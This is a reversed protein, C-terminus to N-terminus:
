GIKRNRQPVIASAQQFLFGSVVFLVAFFATIGFVGLVSPLFISSGWVMIAVVPVLMQAIAMGYLMRAMYLPRLRAFGAGVIGMLIVLLYMMNASNNDGIIGVAANIWVLSFSATLALGVAARYALTGGKTSVLEFALGTSFIMVFAFIFDSLTWNWEGSVQMGIVPVLLLFITGLAILLINRQRITMYRIHQKIIFNFTEIFIWLVYSGRKGKRSHERLLDSFTQEMGEGFREYYPKPYLRILAAYWTRYRQMLHDYAM